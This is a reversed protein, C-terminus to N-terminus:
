KTPSQGIPVIESNYYDLFESLAKEDAPGIGNGTTMSGRLRSLAEIFRRFKSSLGTHLKELTADSVRDAEAVSESILVMARGLADTRSELTQNPRQREEHLIVTSNSFAQIAADFHHIEEKEAATMQQNSGTWHHYADIPWGFAKWQAVFEGFVVWSVVGHENAYKWHYYPTAFILGLGWVGIALSFPAVSIAVAIQKWRKM